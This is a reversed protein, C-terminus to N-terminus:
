VYSMLIVAVSVLANELSYMFELDETQLCCVEFPTGVSSNRTSFILSKQPTIVHLRTNVSAESLGAATIMLRQVHLCSPEESIDAVSCLTVAMVAEMEKYQTRLPDSERPEGKQGCKPPNYMVLCVLKKVSALSIRDVSLVMQLFVMLMKM